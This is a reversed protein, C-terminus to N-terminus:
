RAAGNPTEESAATTLQEQAPTRSQEVPGTRRPTTRKRSRGGSTAGQKGAATTGSATVDAQGESTTATTDDSTRPRTRASSKTPSTPSSKTPPKRLAKTSSKAPAPDRRTTFRGEPASAAVAEFSGVAASPENGGVPGPDDLLGPDDTRPQEPTAATRGGARGGPRVLLALGGVLGGTCAGVATAVPTAPSSPATPAHAATLVTLRVGTSRAADRSSDTLAAAVANATSAARQPHTATGTIEIMPADPSTASRVRERLEPLPVGSTRQAAALVAPSTAIRGYAQAFGLATAPDGREGPVAVVYGTASYEPTAVTGYGAGCLAGLAVGAALPWWRPLTM